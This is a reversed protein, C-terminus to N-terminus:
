DAKKVEKDYGYSGPLFPGTSVKAKGFFLLDIIEQRDIALSLAERIKKNQFKPNKLNFGM